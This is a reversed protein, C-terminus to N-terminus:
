ELSGGGAAAAASSTGNAARRMAITKGGSISTVGAAAGGFGVMQGTREPLVVYGFFVGAALMFPVRMLAPSIWAADPNGLLFSTFGILGAGIGLLVLNEVKAAMILVFFFFFFSEQSARSLLLAISIMATDAVLVPAQMWADFFSFPPAQSLVVNSALAVAVLLAVGGVSGSKSIEVYALLGTTLILGYRCILFTQKRKIAEPERLM